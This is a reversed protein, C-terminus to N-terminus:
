WSCSGEMVLEGSTSSSWLIAMKTTHTVVARYAEMDIVSEPAIRLHKPMERRGLINTPGKIEVCEAPYSSIVLNTIRLGVRPHNEEDTNESARFDFIGM